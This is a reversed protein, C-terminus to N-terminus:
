GIENQRRRAALTRSMADLIRSLNIRDADPLAEVCEAYVDIPSLPSRVPNPEGVLLQEGGTGKRLRPPRPVRRAAEAFDWLRKPLEDIDAM